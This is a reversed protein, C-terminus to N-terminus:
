LKILKSTLLMEGSNNKISLFYLGPNKKTLVNSIENSLISINGTVKCVSVGLYDTIYASAKESEDIGYINIKSDSNILTPFVKITSNETSNGTKLTKGAPRTKYVIDSNNINSWSFLMSTAQEGAVSIASELSPSAPIELYNELPSNPSSPFGIGTQCSYLCIPYVGFNSIHNFAVVLVPDNNQFTGSNANFAVVPRSSQNTSGNIPPFTTPATTVYSGDTYIYDNTGTFFVSTLNYDSVLGGIDTTNNTTNLMEYAVAVGTQAVGGWNTANYRQTAIRPWSVQYNSWQKACLVNTGYSIGLLLDPIREVQVMVKNDNTVFTYCAIVGPNSASLDSYMAVDPMTFGGIAMGGTCNIPTILTFSPVIAVSINGGINQIQGVTTAIQPTGQEDWTIAFYDKTESDINISNVNGAGATIGISNLYVQTISNTSFDYRYVVLYVDVGPVTYAVLIAAYPTGFQSNDKYVIAVDPDTAGQPLSAVVPPVIIAAAPNYEVFLSPTSGDSVIAKVTGNVGNSNVKVYDCGTNVVSGSAFATQSPLFASQYQSYGIKSLMM